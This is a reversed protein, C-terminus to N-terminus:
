VGFYCRISAVLNLIVGFKQGVDNLSHGLIAALRLSSAYNNKGHHLQNLKEFDLKESM